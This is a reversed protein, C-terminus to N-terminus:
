PPPPQEFPPATATGIKDPLPNKAFYDVVGFLLFSVGWMYLLAKWDIRPVAQPDIQNGVALMVYGKVTLAASNWGHAFCGYVYHAAYRKISRGSAKLPEPISM